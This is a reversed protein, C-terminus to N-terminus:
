AACRSCTRTEPFLSLREFGIPEGCGECTGYTGEELRKLAETLQAAKVREREQLGQTLSQNQLADIRSLRGVSTQDLKVPRAAKNTTKMSRTLKALARELEGQLLVVQEPTLPGPTRSM